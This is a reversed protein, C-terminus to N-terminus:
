WVVRKDGIKYLDILNAKTHLQKKSVNASINLFM